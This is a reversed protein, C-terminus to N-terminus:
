LEEEELDNIESEWAEKAMDIYVADWEKTVVTYEEYEDMIPLYLCNTSAYDKMDMDATYNCIVYGEETHLHILRKQEAVDLHPLSMLELKTM